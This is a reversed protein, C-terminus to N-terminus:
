PRCSFTPRLRDEGGASLRIGSSQRARRRRRARMKGPAANPPRRNVAVSLLAEHLINAGQGEGARWVDSDGLKLAIRCIARMRLVRALFHGLAIVIFDESKGASRAVLLEFRGVPPEGLFAMGVAIGLVRAGFDAELLDALGVLDQLIRLLACGVIMETVGSEFAAHAAARPKPGSKAEEIDSMKSSRNPSNM